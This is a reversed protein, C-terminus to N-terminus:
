RRVLAGEERRNAEVIAQLSSIYHKPPFIEEVLVSKSLHSQILRNDSVRPVVGYVPIGEGIRNTNLQGRDFHSVMLHLPIGKEKWLEIWKVASEISFPDARVFFLNRDSEFLLRYVADTEPFCYGWDIYVYDFQKRLATLLNTLEYSKWKSTASSYYLNDMHSSQKFAALWNRRETMGRDLLDPRFLSIQHHSLKFFRTLDPKEFNMDIVAIRKDPNRKALIIPYNICFTTIGSSGYSLLSYVIGKGSQVPLEEGASFGLITSIQEKIEEHSLNASLIYTNPLNSEEVIKNLLSKDRYLPVIVVPIGVPVSAVVKPLWEWVPASFMESFLVAAEPKYIEANRFFDGETEITLFECSTPMYSKVLSKIPYCVITKM